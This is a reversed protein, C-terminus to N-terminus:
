VEEIKPTKEEINWWNTNTKLEIQSNIDITQLKYMGTGM